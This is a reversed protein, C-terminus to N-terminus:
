LYSDNQLFFVLFQLSSIYKKFPFAHNKGVAFENKTSHCIIRPIFDELKQLGNGIDLLDGDSIEMTPRPETISEQNWDLSFYLSLFM